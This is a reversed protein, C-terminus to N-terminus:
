HLQHHFQAENASCCFQMDVNDRTSTWILSNGDPHFYSCADEGKDNIKKLNTGDVNVTYVYFGEDGEMKGNFILSKGDPSFYAEAGQDVNPVETVEFETQAKKVEEVETKVKDSSQQNCSLLFLAILTLHINRM